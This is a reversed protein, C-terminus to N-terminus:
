DCFAEKKLMNRSCNDYKVPVLTDRVGDLVAYTDLLL